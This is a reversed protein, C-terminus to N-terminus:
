FIRGLLSQIIDTPSVYEIPRRYTGQGEDESYGSRLRMVTDGVNWRAQAATTDFLPDYYRALEPPLDQNTKQQYYSPMDAFVENLIKPDLKTFDDIIEPTKVGYHDEYFGQFNQGFDERPSFRSRPQRGNQPTGSPPIVRQLDRAFSQQKDEPLTHWASHLGEHLMTDPNGGPQYKTAAVQINNKGPRHMGYYVGAAQIRDSGFGLPGENITPSETELHRRFNDNFSFRNTSQELLEQGKDFAPNGYRAAGVDGTLMRTFNHQQEKPTGGWVPAQRTTPARLEYPNPQPKRPTPNSYTAGGDRTNLQRGVGQAVQGAQEFKKRFWDM